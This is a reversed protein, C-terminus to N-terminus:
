ARIGGPRWWQLVFSVQQSKQLTWSSHGDSLAPQKDKKSRGPDEADLVLVQVCCASLFCNGFVHDHYRCGRSHKAESKKIWNKLFLYNFYICVSLSPLTLCYPLTHPPFSFDGGVDGPESSVTKKYKKYFRWTKTDEFQCEVLKVLIPIKTQKTGQQIRM